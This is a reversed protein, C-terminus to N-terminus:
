RKLPMANPQLQDVCPRRAPEDGIIDAVEKDTLQRAATRCAIEVLDHLGLHWLMMTEDASRTVLLRSDQSFGVLWVPGEHGRLVVPAQQPDEPDWVRATRDEGTTVLFRSDPTFAVSLLRGTHGLFEVAKSAGPTRLDLVKVSNDWAGFAVWHQDGSFKSQVVRGNFPVEAKLTPAAGADLDWLKGTAIGKQDFNATAAWRADGSIAIQVASVGNEWTRRSNCPNAARLDWLHAKSGGHEGTVASRGDADFSLGSVPAELRCRYRPESAPSDVSVDWFNVTGTYDNSAGSMLWRSDPSFGLSLDGTVGQNPLELATKSLEPFSWLHVVDENEVVAALWRGDASFAIHTAYNKLPRTRVPKRPDKISWILLQHDGVSSSAIWEGDPSLAAANVQGGHGRLVIPDAASDPITWLRAQPDDGLTVLHRPGAGPSFIVQRIPADHGRLRKDPITRPGSLDWLYATGNDGGTALWRGDDSFTVARVTAGHRSLLVERGDLRVDGADTLDWLKVNNDKSGTALWRGDPSFNIAYIFQGHRGAKVVHEPPNDKTLDWVQADYGCGVGLRAEDLSFSIAVLGADSVTRSDCQLSKPPASGPDISFDWLLIQKKIFGFAATALWRGKASFMVRDVPGDHLENSCPTEAAGESTFKWICVHGSETGFVLWEGGPSVALAHVAGHTGFMPGATGRGATLRWLRLTSDEGGSILWNGNLSFALGRVPGSHRGLPVSHSTPDVDDLNWLRIMGDDSGTALRRGDRSFAAVQTSQEHGLLPYGGSVDLQDRIGRISALDKATQSDRSAAHVSLLLNRQPSADPNNSHRALREAKYAQRAENREYISVGAGIIAGIALIIAVTAAVSWQRVKRRDAERVARASAEVFAILAPDLESRRRALLEEGEALRAGRPLLLGDRDEPQAELWRAEDEELRARTRLDGHDASIQQRAREWHTLLAEHAVRVRAASGDGDAVLIRAQPHLLAEVLLREASNEPFAALPVLRATAVATSGQGVTVLRRLVAPFVDRVADPMSRLVQEAREGIAGELGKLAYYHQYTLIGEASRRHWLQDLLYELLPLSAPDRAAAERIVEDLSRGAREDIEFRLGAERAPRRIIQGIEASDPPALLYTAEGASLDALSPITAVRDFFDSRMTAIVWVLGSRALAAISAVYRERTEQAISATFLEELQDVILVLRAEGRETLGAAHGAASLGQRIAQAAQDPARDFINRLRDTSYELPPQVLEPLATEAVLAQALAGFVDKPVKETIAGPRTVVYRCIAVRGIMGPLLLDPLVGAKVLSSKGSGSAGTVLMFACGSEIRRALRERVDNRARMRGFFIPAHEVEFSELGRYPSGQHWTITAPIEIDGAKTLRKRLLARLHEDLLNEFETVDAFERAAAVFCKGDVGRFWRRMFEEVLQTQHRREEWIAPDGLEVTIKARKRYLLLEPLGRRRYGAVADEFEWETGTVPGQSIPGRYKELPLPVGLRSWLVTVVIDTEHPPVILDQFHHTALLPEREWLMVDIQFHHVFERALRKVVREAILREPRVDSPSSVFVRVTRTEAL